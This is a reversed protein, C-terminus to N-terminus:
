VAGTVELEWSFGINRGSSVLVEPSWAEVHGVCAPAYRGSRLGWRVGPPLSHRSRGARRGSRWTWASCRSRAVTQSRGALSALERAPQEVYLPLRPHLMPASSPSTTSSCSRDGRLSELCLSELAGPGTGDPFIFVGVRPTGARVRGCVAPRTLGAQVLADAASQFASQPNEEADRVLGMSVITENGPALLLAKLFPRLESVGGPNQVQVGVLGLHRIMVSAFRDADKGEVILQKTASIAITREVTKM